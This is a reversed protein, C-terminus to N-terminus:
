PFPGLELSSLLSSLGQVRFHPFFVHVKGLQLSMVKLTISFLFIIYLPAFYFTPFSLLPTLPTQFAPLFCHISM